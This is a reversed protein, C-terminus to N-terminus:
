YCYGSFMSTAVTTSCSMGVRKILKVHNAIAIEKARQAMEAVMLDADGEIVDEEMGEVVEWSQSGMGLGDLMRNTVVSISFKGDRIEPRITTIYYESIEQNLEFRVFPEDGVMSAEPNCSSLHSMPKSNGFVNELTNLLNDADAQTKCKAAKRLLSKVKM